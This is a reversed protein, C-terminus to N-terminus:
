EGRKLSLEFELIKNIADVIKEKAEDLEIEQEPTTDGAMIQNENQLEIFIENLKENLLNEIKEKM